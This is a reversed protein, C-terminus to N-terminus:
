QNTMVKRIEEECGSRKWMSWDNNAGAYPGVLSSVLGDPTVVAQWNMGHARKHGSYVTRQAEQGGPRRHGRFTGDVFGYVGKVGGVAEVADAFRKLTSYQTMQPHWRLHNAFRHSLVIVTDNFVTSLWSPSRGFMDAHQYWIGPYSLRACVVCLATIPECDYGNRYEIEELHLLPALRKIEPVTFRLWVRARGPPMLDLSFSGRLYEYMARIPQIQQLYRRRFLLVFILTAVLTSQDM